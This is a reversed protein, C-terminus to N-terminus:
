RWFRLLVQLLAFAIGIAAVWAASRGSQKSLSDNVLDRWKGYDVFFQQFGERSQFHIENKEREEQKHNLNDLRGELVQYALVNAKDMADFRGALVERLRELESATLKQNSEIARDVFHIVSLEVSNERKDDTSPM